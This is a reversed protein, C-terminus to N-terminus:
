NMRVASYEPNPETKRKDMLKKAYKDRILANCPHAAYLEQRLILLNEPANIRIRVQQGHIRTVTVVINDGIQIAQNIVRTLVLM